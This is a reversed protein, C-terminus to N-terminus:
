STTEAEAKNVAATHCKSHKARCPCSSEQSSCCGGADGCNCHCEAEFHGSCGCGIVTRGNLVALPLMAWVAISRWRNKANRNFRIGVMLAEKACATVRVINYRPTTWSLGRISTGVGYGLRVRADATGISYCDRLPKVLRPRNGHLAIAVSSNPRVAEILLNGWFVCVCGFINTECTGYHCM